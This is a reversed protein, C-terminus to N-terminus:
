PNVERTVYTVTVDRWMEFTQGCDECERKGETMETSDSHEYGCYPCVVEATYEHDKDSM